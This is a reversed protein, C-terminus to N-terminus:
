PGETGWTFLTLGTAANSAALSALGWGWESDSNGHLIKAALLSSVVTLGLAAYLRVESGKSRRPSKKDALLSELSLALSTNLLLGNHFYEPRKAAAGYVIGGAGLLTGALVYGVALETSANEVVSQVARTVMIDNMTQIPVTLKNVKGKLGPSANTPDATAFLQLNSWILVPTNPAHYIAMAEQQHVKAEQIEKKKNRIRRDLGHFSEDYNRVVTAVKAKLVVGVASRDLKKLVTRLDRQLTGGESLIDGMRRNQLASNLATIRKAPIEGGVLANIKAPKLFRLLLNGLGDWGEHKEVKIEDFEVFSSKWLSHIINEFENNAEFKELAREWMVKKVHSGKAKDKLEGLKDLETNLKHIDDDAGLSDSFHYRVGLRAEALFPPMSEDHNLIASKLKLQFLDLGIRGASIGLLTYTNTAYLGGTAGTEGPAWSTMGELGFQEGIRGKVFGFRLMGPSWEHVLDVGVNFDYVNQKGDADSSPISRNKVGASLQLVHNTLRFKAALEGGTANPITPAQQRVPSPTYSASGSIEQLKFAPQNEEKAPQAAPAGLNLKVETATM